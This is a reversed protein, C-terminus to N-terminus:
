YDGESLKYASPTDSGYSQELFASVRPSNTYYRKGQTKTADFRSDSTLLQAFVWPSVGENVVQTHGDCFVVVVGGPHRSSPLGQFGLGADATANIMRGGSLTSADGFLGFVSTVVQTTESSVLPPGSTGGFGTPGYIITPIATYRATAAVLPGCKETFLMTNSTGDATSISDLNTRAASYQSEGGAVSSWNDGVTDLLVGDGKYQSNKTADFVTSGANGVYSLVPDTTSDPPSSPCVLISLYPDPSSPLGGANTVQEWSRYIDNRELNPMLVIPWPVGVTAPVVTTNSNPHKNRWGPLTQRATDFQMTAKGLQNLNNTCTNRRGAERASQVAPLLLGMLTAIISIVVLLEVLTFGRMSPTSEADSSRSVGFGGRCTRNKPCM